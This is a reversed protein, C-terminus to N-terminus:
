EKEKSESKPTKLLATLVICAVFMLCCLMTILHIGSVSGAIGGFLVPVICGGFFVSVGMILGNATGILREPLAKGPIYYIFLSVTAAAWNGFMVYGAVSAVSGPFLTMLLPTVLCIVFTTLMVKKGSFRDALAPILISIPIYILGMASLLIGKLETGIGAVDTLYLPGFITLTLKGACEFVGILLCLMFTRNKLLERLAIFFSGARNGESTQKEYTVEKVTFQMVLTAALLLIGTLAFAGRWTFRMAVATLLVPGLTSAIVASGASVFGSRKGFDNKVLNKGLISVLMSLTAGVCCGWLFRLILLPWFSNVMASLISFVSALILSPVIWVKRKGTRDALIGIVVSSVAKTCWVASNLASYQSATIQLEKMFVDAFFTIGDAGLMMFGYILFFLVSLYNVYASSRTTKEQM